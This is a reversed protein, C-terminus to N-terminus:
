HMKILHKKIVVCPFREGLQHIDQVKTDETGRVLLQSVVGSVVPWYTGDVSQTVRHGQGKVKKSCM